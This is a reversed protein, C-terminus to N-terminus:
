TSGFRPETMPEPLSTSAARRSLTPPNLPTRVSIAFTFRFKNDMSNWYLAVAVDYDDIDQDMVVSGYSDVNPGAGEPKVWAAWTLNQNELSPSPAVELYGNKGLSFGDLVEAPVLSVGSAANPNNSGAIDDNNTDGPWWSV